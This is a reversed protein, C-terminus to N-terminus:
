EDRDEEQSDVDKKRILNIVTPQLAEGDPGSHENQRRDEWGFNKLAFIAGTPSSEFLRQEYGSEIL